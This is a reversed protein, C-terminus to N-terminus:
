ELTDYSIADEDGWAVAVFRDPKVHLTEVKRRTAWKRKTVIGEPDVWDESVEDAVIECRFYVDVQHFTGNLDHFENILCVDGVRVQLLNRPVSLM